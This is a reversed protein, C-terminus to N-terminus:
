NEETSDSRSESPCNHCNMKGQQSEATVGLSCSGFDSVRPTYVTSWSIHEERAEQDSREVRAEGGYGVALKEKDGQSQEQCSEPRSAMVNPVTAM